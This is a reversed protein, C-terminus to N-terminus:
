YAIAVARDRADTFGPQSKPQFIGYPNETLECPSASRIEILASGIPMASRKRPGGRDEPLNSGRIDMLFFQWMNHLNPVSYGKGFRDSLLISLLDIVQDGHRARRKGQQEVEVIERGILWYAHVMASNVSRAVHGRAAEIIEVVRKYLNEERVRAIKPM